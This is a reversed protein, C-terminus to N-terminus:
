SSLRHVVQQGQTMERYWAPCSRQLPDGTPPEVKTIRAGMQLLRYAAVPGPVNIAMTVVHVNQLAKM